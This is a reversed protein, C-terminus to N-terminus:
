EEKKQRFQQLRTVRIMIPVAIFTMILLYSVIATPYCYIWSVGDQIPYEVIYAAIVVSIAEFGGITIRMYRSLQHLGGFLQTMVLYWIFTFVIAAIAILVEDFFLASLLAIGGYPMGAFWNNPGGADSKILVHFDEHLQEDNM